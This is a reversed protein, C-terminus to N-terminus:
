LDNRWASLVVIENPGRRAPAVALGRFCFEVTMSRTRSRYHWVDGTKTNRIAGGRLVNVVDGSLMRADMMADKAGQSFTTM